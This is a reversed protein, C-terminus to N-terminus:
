IFEVNDLGKFEKDGTLFKYKLRKAIVYGICDAYSFRKKSNKKRFRSAKMVDAATPVVVMKDFAEVVDDAKKESFATLVAYHIEVLNMHTLVGKAEEIYKKLKSNGKLYDIVAYSDYFYKV